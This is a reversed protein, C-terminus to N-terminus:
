SRWGRRAADKRRRRKATVRVEQADARATMRRDGRPQAPAAGIDRRYHMGSFAITAVRTYARAVAAAIDAGLAAVTLVRGGSTVVETGRRATGSHFM